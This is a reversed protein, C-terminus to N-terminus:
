PRCTISSRRSAAQRRVMEYSEKVQKNDPELRIARELQSLARDYHGLKALVLGLAQLYTTNSPDKGLARTWRQAALFLLGSKYYARGERYFGIASTTSTPFTARRREGIFERAVALHMLLLASMSLLSVIVLSLGLQGSFYLGAGVGALGFLLSLAIGSYLAFARRGWCGWAMLTAFSGLAASVGAIWLLVQRTNTQPTIGIMQM